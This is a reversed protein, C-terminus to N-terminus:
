ENLAPVLALRCDEVARSVGSSRVLRTTRRAVAREAVEDCWLVCRTVDSEGIQRLLPALLAVVECLPLPLTLRGRRGRHQASAWASPLTRTEGHHFVTEQSCFVGGRLGPEGSGTLSRPHLPDEWIGRPEARGRRKLLQRIAAWAGGGPVPGVSRCGVDGPPM